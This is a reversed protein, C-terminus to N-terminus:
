AKKEAEQEIMRNFWSRLTSEGIELTEDSDKLWNNVAIASRKGKADMYRPVVCRFVVDLVRVISNELKANSKLVPPREDLRLGSRMTAMDTWGLSEAYHCYEALEIYKENAGEGERVHNEYLAIEVGMLTQLIDLRDMFIRYRESDQTKLIQRAKKIPEINMGLLTAQWPRALKRQYWHDWRPEQLETLAPTTDANDELTLNDSDRDRVLTLGEPTHRLLYTKEKSPM